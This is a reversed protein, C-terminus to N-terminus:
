ATPPTPSADRPRSLVQMLNPATPPSESSSCPSSASPTRSRQPPSPTFPLPPLPPNLIAPNLLDLILHLQPRAGAGARAPTPSSPAPRPLHFPLPPSRSLPPQQSLVSIVAVAEYLAGAQEARTLTHPPACTSSHRRSRSSALSPGPSASRPMLSRQAYVAACAAPHSLSTSTLAQM